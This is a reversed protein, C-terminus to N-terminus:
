LYTISGLAELVRVQGRKEQRGNRRLLECPTQSGEAKSNYYFCSKEISLLKFRSASLNAEADFLFEFSEKMARGRSIRAKLLQCEALGIQDGNHQFLAEARDVAKQAHTLQGRRIEVMAKLLSLRPHSHIEEPSIAQDFWEGLDQWRGRVIAEGGFKVMLDTIAEREGAELLCSIAQHLNGRGIAITGAKKYLAYREPGLKSLLHFRIMPVLKFQDGSKELFFQHTELYDIKERSAHSGLLQDCDAATFASLVSTKVLFELVDWPIGQLVERDLYAALTPPIRNELEEFVNEMQALCSVM